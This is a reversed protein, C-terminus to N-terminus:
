DGVEDFPCVLPQCRAIQSQVWGGKMPTLIRWYYNIGPRMGSVTIEFPDLRKGTDKLDHISLKLLSAMGGYRQALSRGLGKKDGKDEFLRFSGSNSFRMYTKQKHRVLSNTAFLKLNFGKKSTTVDLRQIVPSSDESSPSVDDEMLDSSPVWIIRALGVGPEISSCSVECRLNKAALSRDSSEIQMDGNSEEESNSAALLTSPSICLFIVLAKLIAM